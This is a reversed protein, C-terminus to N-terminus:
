ARRLHRFDPEASSFTDNAPDAKGIGSFRAMLGRMEGAKHQLERSSTASEDVMAANEQTVKDLMGLGVNIESLGTAQEEAGSAIDRIHKSVQSVGELIEQIATGMDSVLKVGNSISDNSNVILSRIQAASESSRQALARVESAVVAFGRGADGARAAEVGANLALLNTQFAIDDILQVIQGIQESSNEITKMADAARNRVEEGREAQGRANDMAQVIDRAGSATSSVSNSIEEMAAATQELTAAQSETRRSLNETGDSLRQADDNILDANSQLSGITATLASVTHNFNQRLAEYEGPFATDILCDLSGDALATLSKSLQEIVDALAEASKEREVIAARGDALESKFRELARAIDGLEDGTKIQAVISDFDGEAIGNVSSALAIIRRTLTNAIWFALAAVILMVATTQLTALSLLQNVAADAEEQDQEFILRWDAGFFDSVKTYAIVPNGSLGEVDSFSTEEGNRAAIIQPLEPMRDLLAHGGGSGSGSRARGDAGIVYVQGTEGLLASSSLIYSIEDVPLQLAAVGIRVGNKDFVPTAIFKAPAGASPAYPAFDTVHMEGRPLQAAARYAVGLDSAAYQGTQFNTAFDLEKFVSYILNGDLDFLFLDYYGRAIQFNRFGLHFEGHAESWASGDDAKELKDKEGNPFRNDTIYLQQLRQEPDQGLADWGRDFAVVAQQTALGFALVEMDTRVQGLWDQLKDSKDQLLQNFAIDRQDYLASRATVLSLASVAIMLILTPLGILIPVKYKLKLRRWRNRRNKGNWVEAM